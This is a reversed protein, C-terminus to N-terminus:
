TGVQATFSPGTTSQNAQACAPTSPQSLIPPCVLFPPLPRSLPRSPGGTPVRSASVKARTVPTLAGVAARSIWVSGARETDLVTRRQLSFCRLVLHNFLYKYKQIRQSYFIFVAKLFSETNSPVFLAM